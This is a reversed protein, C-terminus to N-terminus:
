NKQVIRKENQLLFRLTEPPPRAPLLPDMRLEVLIRLHVAIALKHHGGAPGLLLVVDVDPGPVVGEIQAVPRRQQHVGALHLLEALLVALERVEHLDGIEFTLNNQGGLLLSGGFALALLLYKKYSAINTKNKRKIDQYKLERHQYSKFNSYVRHM